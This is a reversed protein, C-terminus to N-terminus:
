SCNKATVEEWSTHTTAIGAAVWGAFTLLSALIVLPVFWRAIRDAMRQLPVRTERARGVLRAIQALVTDDRM